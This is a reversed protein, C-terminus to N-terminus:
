SHVTLPKSVIIRQQIRIVTIMFLQVGIMLTALLLHFPQAFAPMGLYYLVIGLGIELGICLGLGLVATRLLGAQKGLRVVKYALWGNIALLAISFSRHVYFTTGLQNVWQGRQEEGLMKAIVDISERVQTGLLIQALSLAVTLWVIGELGSLNVATPMVLKKQQAWAVLYILVGVLAIAVLMHLTILLPLLNTSVVLSGLWGEFGVMLVACAALLTVKPHTKRYRWSALFTAFILFGIVVGVLRNVYEIWTKVPNFAAEEYIAPDHAVAYSLQTYGLRDLLSAMRLNKQQRKAAYVEKYDDPLQAAQTPPVWSGFCKPWDPCGMGAGTSRVISGVLILLYVAIITTIGLRGFLSYKKTKAIEERM